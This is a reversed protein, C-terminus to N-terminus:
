IITAILVSQTGSIRERDLLVQRERNKGGLRFFMGRQTKRGLPLVAGRLKRKEARPFNRFATEIRAGGVAYGTNASTFQVSSLNYRTRSYQVTWSVGGNVTEIITGYDGVAYGTDSNVFYVSNLANGEPLPNKWIWNDQAHLEGFACLLVFFLLVNKKVM